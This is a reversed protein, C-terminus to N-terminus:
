TGPPILGELAEGKETDLTEIKPFRSLCEQLAEAIMLKDITEIISLKNDVRGADALRMKRQSALAYKMKSQSQPCDYGTFQNETQRFPSFFRSSPPPFLHCGTSLCKPGDNCVGTPSFVSQQCTQNVDCKQDARLAAMRTEQTECSRREASTRAHVVRVLRFFCFSQECEVVVVVEEIKNNDKTRRRRRRRRMEM